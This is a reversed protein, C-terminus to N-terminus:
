KGLDGGPEVDDQQNQPPVFEPGDERVGDVENHGDDKARSDEDHEREVELVLRERHALGNAVLGEPHDLELEVLVHACLMGLDGPLGGGGGGVQPPRRV